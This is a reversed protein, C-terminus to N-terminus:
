LAPHHAFECGAADAVQAGAGIVFFIRAGLDLLRGPDVAVAHGPRHSGSLRWYDNDSVKNLNLNFGLGGIASVGTDLTGLHQLSYSWRDRERLKDGPLINARLQGKYTPELYRFEGALDVGRKSMLAPFVDCGTRRSTLIIPSAFSLGTSQVWAWRPCCCAQNKTKREPFSFKPFALIPVEKFRVVAGTAVGIDQDLDFDVRQATLEWAPKWSEENGRECTTYTAQHATLHKDDFFDIREAQGNGGTALFQYRPKTFFGEFRDSKLELAPGEATAGAKNIRVNGTSKLQDDPQYYEIRDARMSTAGRRLEANGEIM